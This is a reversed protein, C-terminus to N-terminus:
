EPDVVWAREYVINVQRAAPAVVELVYTGVKALPYQVFGRLLNCRTTDDAYATPVREGEPDTLRMGVLASLHLSARGARTNTLRVRAPGGGEPLLVTYNTHTRAIAGAANPDEAAEITAFPGGSTHGCAHSLNPDEPEPAAGLAVGSPLQSLRQFTAARFVGTADMIAGFTTAGSRALLRTGWARGSRVVSPPAGLASWALGAVEGGELEVEGFLAGEDAGSICARRPASFLVPGDATTHIFAQQVGEVVACGFVRGSADLTRASSSTAAAPGVRACSAYAAGECAIAHPVGDIWEAGVRRAGLGDFIEADVPFPVVEADATPFLRAPEVRGARVVAGWFFSGAAHRLRVSSAAPPLPLLELANGESAAFARESANSGLTGYTKSGAAGWAASPVDRDVLTSEDVLAFVEHPLGGIFAWPKGAFRVGIRVVSAEPPEGRDAVLVVSSEGRAGRLADVHLEGSAVQATLWPGVAELRAGQIPAGGGFLAGVKFTARTREAL